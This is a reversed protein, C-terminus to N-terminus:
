SDGEEDEAPMQIVRPRKTFSFPLVGDSNLEAVIGSQTNKNTEVSDRASDIAGKDLARSIWGGRLGVDIISDM